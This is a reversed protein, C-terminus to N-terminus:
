RLLQSLWGSQSVASTKSEKDGIVRSGLDVLIVAL